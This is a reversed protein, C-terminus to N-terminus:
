KSTAASGQVNKVSGYSTPLLGLQKHNMVVQFLGYHLMNINM